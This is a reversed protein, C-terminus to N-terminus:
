SSQMRNHGSVWTANLKSAETIGFHTFIANHIKTNTIGPAIPVNNTEIVVLALTHVPQTHFGFWPMSPQTLTSTLVMSPKIAAPIIRVLGTEVSYIAIIPFEPTDNNTIKATDTFQKHQRITTLAQSNPIDTSFTIVNNASIWSRAPPPAPLGPLPLPALLQALGVVADQALDGPSTFLTLHNSSCIILERTPMVTPLAPHTAIRTFFDNHDTTPIELEVHTWGDITPTVDRPDYKEELMDILSQSNTSRDNKYTPISIRINDPTNVNSLNSNTDLATPDNSNTLTPPPILLLTPLEQTTPTNQFEHIIYKHEHIARTHTIRKLPHDFEGECTPDNLYHTKSTFNNTTNNLLREIIQPNLRLINSANTNIDVHEILYITNVKKRLEPSNQLQNTISQYTMDSTNTNHYNRTHILINYKRNKSTNTRIIGVAAAYHEDTETHTTTDTELADDDDFM